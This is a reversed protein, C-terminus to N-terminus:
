PPDELREVFRIDGERSPRTLVVKPGWVRVTQLEYLLVFDLPRCIQSLGRRILSIEDRLLLRM